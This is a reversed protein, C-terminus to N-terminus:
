LSSIQNVGCRSEMAFRDMTKSSTIAWAGHVSEEWADINAPVKGHSCSVVWCDGINLGFPGVKISRNAAAPYRVPPNVGFGHTEGNVPNAAPKSTQSLKKVGFPMEIGYNTPEELISSHHLLRRKSRNLAATVSIASESKSVQVWRCPTPIAWDRRTRSQPFCNTRFM